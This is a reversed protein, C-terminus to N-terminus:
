KESAFRRRVMYEPNVDSARLPCYESDLPSLILVTGAPLEVRGDKSTVLASCRPGGRPDLSVKKLGVVEGPFNPPGDPDLRQDWGYAWERCDM